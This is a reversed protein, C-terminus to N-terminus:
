QSHEEPFASPKSPSAHRSPEPTRQSDPLGNANPSACYAAAELLQEQNVPQDTMIEEQTKSARSTSQAEAEQRPSTAKKITEKHSSWNRLREQGKHSRATPNVYTPPIWNPLDWTGTFSTWASGSKAKMGPLLHGRDTAIFTTHGDAASPREKFHKPVTWNQLKQSKFAGEYQNASFGSSM